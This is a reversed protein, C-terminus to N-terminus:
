DQLHLCYTPRFSRYGGVASSLTLILLWFSCKWGHFNCYKCNVSTMKPYLSSTGPLEPRSRGTCCLCHRPSNPSLRTVYPIIHSVDAHSCRCECCKFLTVASFLTGQLNTLIDQLKASVQVFLEIARLSIPVRVLPKLRQFILHQRHLTMHRCHLRNQM